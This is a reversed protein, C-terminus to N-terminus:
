GMNMYQSSGVTFEKAIKEPLYKLLHPYAPTVRPVYDQDLLLWTPTQVSRRTLPLLLPPHVLPLQKHSSNQPNKRKKELLFLLPLYRKQENHINKSSFSTAVKIRFSSLSSVMYSAVM